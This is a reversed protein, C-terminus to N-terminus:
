WPTTYKPNIIVVTHTDGNYQAAYQYLYLLEVIAIVRTPQSKPIVCCLSGYIERKTLNKIFMMFMCKQKGQVVTPFNISKQSQICKVINGRWPSLCRVWPVHM